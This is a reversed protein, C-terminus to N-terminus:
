GVTNSCELSLTVLSELSSDRSGVWDQTDSDAVVHFRSLGSVSRVTSTSQSLLLGLSRTTKTDVVFLGEETPQNM